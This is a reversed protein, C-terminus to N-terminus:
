LHPVQTLSLLTPFQESKCPLFLAPVSHSALSAASSVGASTAVTTITDTEEGERGERWQSSKLTLSQESESGQDRM